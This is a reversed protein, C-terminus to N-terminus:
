SKRNVIQSKGVLLILDYITFGFDYIEPQRGLSLPFVGGTPSVPAGKGPAVCPVFPPGVRAVASWAGGCRDAGVRIAGAWGPAQIHGAVDPLPRRAPVRGIGVVRG